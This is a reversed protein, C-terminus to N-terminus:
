DLFQFSNMMKEVVPYYKNYNKKPATFSLIYARNKKICWKQLIKLYIQGQNVTYVVQCANERSLRATRKDIIKVKMNQTLQTMLLQTYADLDMPKQSLDQTMINFNDRFQGSSASDRGNELPALFVAVTGLYGDQVPWDPPRSISIGYEANNYVVFSNTPKTKASIDADNFAVLISFVLIYSIFKTFRNM